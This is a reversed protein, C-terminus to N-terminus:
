RNQANFSQGCHQHQRGQQGSAHKRTNCHRRGYLRRRQVRDIRMSGVRPLFFGSRLCKKLADTGLTRQRDDDTQPEIEL